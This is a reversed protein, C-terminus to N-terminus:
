KVKSTKTKTWQKNNETIELYIMRMALIGDPTGEKGGQSM